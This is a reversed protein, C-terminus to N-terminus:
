GRMSAYILASVTSGAASSTVGLLGNVDATVVGGGLGSLSNLTIGSDRVTIRSTNDTAIIVPKNGLQSILLRNSLANSLLLANNPIDSSDLKITAATFSPGTQQCFIGGSGAIIGVMGATGTSLNSTARYLASATVSTNDVTSTSVTYLLQPSSTPNSTADGFLIQKNPVTITSGIGTNGQNGQIGTDGQIGQLGTYGFPGMWGQPGTVGQQGDVGNAGTPGQSGTLGMPGGFAGTPGQPGTAGQIGNSALDHLAKLDANIQTANNVGANSLPYYPLAM